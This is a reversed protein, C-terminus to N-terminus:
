RFCLCCFRCVLSVFCPRRCVICRNTPGHVIRPRYTPKKTKSKMVSARCHRAVHGTKKCTFCVPQTSGDTGTTRFQDTKRPKETGWAVSHSVPEVITSNSSSPKEISVPVPVSNNAPPTPSPEDHDAPTDMLLLDEQSSHIEMEDLSDCLKEADRESM